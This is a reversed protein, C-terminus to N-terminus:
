HEVRWTLFSSCDIDCRSCPGLGDRRLRPRRIMMMESVAVRTHDHLGQLATRAVVCAGDRTDPDPAIAVMQLGCAGGGGGIGRLARGHRLGSRLDRRGAM